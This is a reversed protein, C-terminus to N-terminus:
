GGSGRGGSGAASGGKGGKGGKGSRPPRRRDPRDPQAGDPQPQRDGEQQAPRDRQQPRQRQRRRKDNNAADGGKDAPSSAADAGTDQVKEGRGGGRGGGGRGGSGRSNGASSNQAAGAAASPPPLGKGPPPGMASVAFGQVKSAGLKGKDERLGGAISAWSKKAPEESSPAPAPEEAGGAEPAVQEADGAEDGDAEGEEEEGYSGSEDLAAEEEEVVGNGVEEAAYTAGATDNAEDTLPAQPEQVAAAEHSGAVELEPQMQYAPQMPQQEQSQPPPQVEYAQAAAAQAAAQQAAQAAAEAAEARREALAAEGRVAALEVRLNETESSEQEIRSTYMEITKKHAEITEHASRLEMQLQDKEAAVREAESRMMEVEKRWEAIELQLREAQANAAEESVFGPPCSSAADDAATIGHPWAADDGDANMFRHIDNLVSYGESQEAKQDVYFARAFHRNKTEPAQANGETSEWSLCGTVLVLAGNQKLDQDIALIQARGTHQSEFEAMAQMVGEKIEQEKKKEKEVLQKEEKIQKKGKVVGWESSAQKDEVINAVTTEIEAEDYHCRKVLNAIDKQSYGYFEGLIPGLREVHEMTRPSYTQSDNQGGKSSAGVVQQVRMQQAVRPDTTAAGGSGNTKTAPNNANNAEAKKKGVRKSM